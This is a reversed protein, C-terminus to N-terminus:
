LEINYCRQANEQLIKRVHAPDVDALVESLHAQPDPYLATPHPFDTEFMVNDPGILDLMKSPAIKEFWFSAFMQDKFYEVPRRQMNHDPMM